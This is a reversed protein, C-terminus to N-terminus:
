LEIYEIDNEKCYEVFKKDNDSLHLKQEEIQDTIFNFHYQNIDNEMNVMSPTINEKIFNHLQISIIGIPLYLVKFTNGYNLTGM